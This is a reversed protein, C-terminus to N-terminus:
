NSPNLNCAAMIRRAHREIDEAPWLAAGSQDCEFQRRYSVYEAMIASELEQQFGDHNKVMWWLAEQFTYRARKNKTRRGM